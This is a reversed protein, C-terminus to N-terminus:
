SEAALVIASEAETLSKMVLIIEEALVCESEVEILSVREVCTRM